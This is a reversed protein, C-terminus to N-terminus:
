HSAAGEVRERAFLRSLTRRDIGLVEAARTKNGNTHLLVRDIYEREIEALTRWPESSSVNARPALAREVDDRVIMDGRALLVARELTQALQRLNGPWPHRVLADRADPSLSPAPRGLIMAYHQTFHEILAPLDERRASLPPVQLTVVQLRFLLDERFRGEDSEANLDTSTATVLRLDVPRSLGGRRVAREEIVRLLQAQGRPGLADVDDLFLTGRHSDEILGPHMDDGFLERAFDADGGRRCRASVFAGVRESRDHITKAVLEKGAGEDGLILVSASTPALQVIIRYLDMMAPSSGVMLGDRSPRRDHGEHRLSRNETALKRWEAARRLTHSFRPADAPWPLCDYVGEGLLLMPERADDRAGVVIVPREASEAIVRRVERLREEEGGRVPLLLVEPEHTVVVAGCAQAARSVEDRLAWEGGLVLVRVAGSRQM